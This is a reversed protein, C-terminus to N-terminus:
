PIPVDWHDILMFTIMGGPFLDNNVIEKEHHIHWIQWYGGTLNLGDEGPPLPAHPGLFPSGSYLLGFSLDKQGPLDVPIPKGHDPAYEEPEMPVNDFVGDANHDIDEPGPFNDQPDNDIDQQHGYIDWGLKEGTWEFIADHTSGPLVNQNYDSYALDAGSVGDDSSLLRGDRAIFLTNNGHAHMPHADRGAGILRMLIREGPHMRALTSYPQHPLLDSYPAALVTDPFCRGNLFWYVPNYTTNDIIDIYGATVAQHFLPDMETHLFLYERDYASSEHNYAIKNTEPDYGDPRIILAGVLGMEVQMEPRTGSNYMYTGPAAATFTYTVVTVGDPPAERTMLGALGGAATVDMQGPFLISVPECIENTLNIRVIDGQDVLLTPGPYQMLGNPDPSYGWMFWSGGDPTSIYGSKVTLDFTRVGGAFDGSIGPIAAQGHASLMITGAIAAVM